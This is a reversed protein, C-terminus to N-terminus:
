EGAELFVPEGARDRAVLDDVIRAFHVTRIDGGGLGVLYNQVVAGPDALGRVEGWVIGGLGPCVDRDLIAIRRRGALFGRLTEEPLPRFMRLRLAGANVGRERAEDV